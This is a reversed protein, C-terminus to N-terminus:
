LKYQGFGAGFAVRTSVPLMNEQREEWMADREENSLGKIGGIYKKAAEDDMNILEAMSSSVGEGGASAFSGGGSAGGGGGGGTPKGAGAVIASQMEGPNAPDYWIGVQNGQADTTWKVEFEAMAAEIKDAEALYKEAMASDKNASATAEMEDLRAELTQVTEGTTPDMAQGTQKLFDIYQQQRSIEQEQALEQQKILLGQSAAFMVAETGIRKERANQLAKYAGELAKGSAGALKMKEIHREREKEDLIAEKIENRKQDIKAVGEMTRSSRASGKAGKFRMLNEITAQSNIDAQALKESYKNNANEDWNLMHANTEKKSKAELEELYKQADAEQGAWFQNEAQARASTEDTVGFAGPITPSEGGVDGGGAPMPPTLDSVVNNGGNAGMGGSYLGQNGINTVGSGGGSGGGWLDFATKGTAPSANGGWKDIVSSQDNSVGSLYKDAPVGGVTVSKVKEYAMQAPTKKFANMQDQQNAFERRGGVQNPDGSITASGIKPVMHTAIVNGRADYSKKAEWGLTRGLRDREISSIVRGSADLVQGNNGTTYQQDVVGPTSVMYKKAHKADWAAQTVGSAHMKQGTAARGRAPANARRPHNKAVLAASAKSARGANSTNTPKKLSTRYKALKVKQSAAFGKQQSKYKTAM